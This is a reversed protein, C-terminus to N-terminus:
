PTQRVIPTERLDGYGYSVMGLIFLTPLVKYDNKALWEAAPVTFNQPVGNQVHYTGQRIRAHRRISVPYGICSYRPAFNVAWFVSYRDIEQALLAREQDSFSPAPTVNGSLYDYQWQLMGGIFPVAPVDVENIIQLTERYTDQTAQAEFVM